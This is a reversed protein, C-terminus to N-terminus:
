SSRSRDDSGPPLTALPAEIRLLPAPVDIEWGIWVLTYGERMLLGDGVEADTTPDNGPRARNFRTLLGRRGRNAAEFLMVGNGKSPDAPRLVYLDASFHM